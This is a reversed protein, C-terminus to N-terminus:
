SKGSKEDIFRRLDALDQESIDSDEYLASMLSLVSRGHVRDLFSGSEYRLYEERGVLPYYCGERGRKEIRLYGRNCLRTLLTLLTQPKWGREEGVKRMLTASTLPPEQSWVAKMIEFEAEPLQKLKKM